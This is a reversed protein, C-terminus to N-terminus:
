HNATKSLIEDSIEGRIDDIEESAPEGFKERGLGLINLYALMIELVASRAKRYLQQTSCLHWYADRASYGNELMYSVGYGVVMLGQKLQEKQGFMDQGSPGNGTYILFSNVIELLKEEDTETTFTKQYNHTDLFGCVYSVHKASLAGFGKKSRHQEGFHSKWREWLQETKGFDIQKESM